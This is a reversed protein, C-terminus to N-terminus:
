IAVANAAGLQISENKTCDRVHLNRYPLVQEFRTRANKKGQMLTLFQGYKELELRRNLSKRGECFKWRKKRKEVEEVNFTHRFAKIGGGGIYGM